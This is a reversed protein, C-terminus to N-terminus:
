APPSANKFKEQLWELVYRQDAITARRTDRSRIAAMNQSRQESPPILTTMEDSVYM